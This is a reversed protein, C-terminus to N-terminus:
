ALATSRVTGRRLYLEVVVLNIGWSAWATVDYTELVTWGSAMLFPMILRLTVAAFTLAISRLMWTRHRATQGRIAFSIGIATAGLWMSGLLVFGVRAWNSGEFSAAIGLSALGALLISVGYTYGMIRHVRPHTARLRTSLQFPALLMALPGLTLHVWLAVPASTLYTVMNPMVESLPLFFARTSVLAVGLCLFTFTASWLRPLTM